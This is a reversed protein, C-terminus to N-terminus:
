RITNLPLAYYVYVSNYFCFKLLAGLCCVTPLYSEFIFLTKIPDSILDFNEYFMLKM